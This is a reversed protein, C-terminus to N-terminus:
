SKKKPKPYEKNIVKKPKIEKILKDKYVIEPPTNIFKIGNRDIFYIDPKDNTFLDLKSTQQIIKYLVGAIELDNMKKNKNNEWLNSLQSICFDGGSGDAYFSQIEILAGDSSISYCKSKNEIDNFGISLYNCDIENIFQSRRYDFLLESLDNIFEGFSIKLDPCDGLVKEAKKNRIIKRLINSIDSVSGTGTVFLDDVSFIKKYQDPMIRHYGETLRSDAGLFWTGTHINFFSLITTGSKKINNKEM